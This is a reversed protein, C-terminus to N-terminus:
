FFFLDDTSNETPFISKDDDEGSDDNSRGSGEFEASSTSVITSERTSSTVSNTVQIPEATGEDDGNIIGSGSGDIEM